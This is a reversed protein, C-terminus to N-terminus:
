DPKASNWLMLMRKVIATKNEKNYCGAPTKEIKKSFVTSLDTPDHYSLHLM